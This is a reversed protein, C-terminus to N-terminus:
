PQCIPLWLCSILGDWNLHGQTVKNVRPPTETSDAVSGDWPPSAEADGFNKNVEQM